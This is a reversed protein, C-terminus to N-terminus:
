SWNNCSPSPVDGRIRPFSVTGIGHISTVLFMGAYAPFVPMGNVGEWTVTSCGRTHPSFMLLLAASIHPTPVDGRIRPFCDIKGKSVMDSLFMGAYAPFVQMLMAGCALLLSCGRTHPSFATKGKDLSFM